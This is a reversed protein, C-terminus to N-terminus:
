KLKAAYRGREVRDIYGQNVMITLTSAITEVNTDERLKGEAHLTDFIERANMMNEPYKELLLIIQKTINGSDYVNEAKEYHHM